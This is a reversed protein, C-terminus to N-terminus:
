RLEFFFPGLTLYLLAIIAVIYVLFRGPNERLADWTTRHQGRARMESYEGRLRASREAEYQDILKRAREYQHPERVWIAPPSILWNGAPTEYFSIGNEKLLARVDEVEDEPADRLSLVRKAM